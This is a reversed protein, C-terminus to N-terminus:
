TVRYRIMSMSFGEIPVVIGEGGACVALERWALELVEIRRERTGRCVVAEEENPFGDTRMM